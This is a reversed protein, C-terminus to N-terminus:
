KIHKSLNEVITNHQVSLLAANYKQIHISEDAILKNLLNLVFTKTPSEPAQQVKAIVDNYLNITAIEGNIAIQLAREITTGSKINRNLGANNYVIASIDGGLNGILERLKNKHMMEVMAIGIFLDNYDVYSEGFSTYLNIANGEAADSTGGFSEYFWEPSIGAGPDLQTDPPYDIVTSAYEMKTVALLLAEYKATNFLEKM